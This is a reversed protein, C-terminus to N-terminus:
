YLEQQINRESTTNDMRTNPLDIDKLGHYASYGFGIIGVGVTVAAVAILNFVLIAPIAVAAAVVVSIVCMIAAQALQVKKISECPGREDICYMMLNFMKNKQLQSFYCEDDEDPLSDM